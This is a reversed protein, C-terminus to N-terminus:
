FRSGGGSDGGGGGGDSPEGGKTPKQTPIYLTELSLEIERQEVPPEAERPVVFVILVRNDKASNRYLWVDSEAGQITLDKEHRTKYAKPAVYAPSGPIQVTSWEAEDPVPKGLAGYIRELALKEPFEAADEVVEDDEAAWMEINSLLYVYASHPFPEESTRWAGLLGPWEETDDGFYSPQRPDDSPNSPGNEGEESAPKEILRFQAPVRWQIDSQQWAPTLERDLTELHEFYKRTEELRREYTETGCGAFLCLLVAGACLRGARRANTSVLRFPPIPM